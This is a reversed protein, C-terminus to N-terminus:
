DGAGAWGSKPLSQFPRTTKGRKAGAGAGADCSDMEGGRKNMKEEKWLVGSLKGMAFSLIM